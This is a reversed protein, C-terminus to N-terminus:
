LLNYLQKFISFKNFMNGKFSSSFKVKKYHSDTTFSIRNNYNQALLM